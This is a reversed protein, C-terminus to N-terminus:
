TKCNLQEDAMALSVQLINEYVRGKDDEFNLTGLYIRCVPFKSWVVSKIFLAIMLYYVQNRKGNEMSKGELLIFKM